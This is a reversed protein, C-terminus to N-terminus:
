KGIDSDDPPPIYTQDNSVKGGYTRLPTLYDNGLMVQIRTLPGKCIGRYGVARMQYSMPAYSNMFSYSLAYRIKEGRGVTGHLLLAHFFVADGKEFGGLPTGEELTYGEPPLVRRNRNPLLGHLHSGPVVCLTNDEEINALPIWVYIQGLSAGTWMEQHLAKLTTPNNDLPDNIVPTTFNVLAIDPGLFKGLALLLRPSHILNEFLSTRAFQSGLHKGIGLVPPVARPHDKLFRGRHREYGSVVFDAIEDILAANIVARAIVFGNNVFCEVFEADDIEYKYPVVNKNKYADSGKTYMDALKKM